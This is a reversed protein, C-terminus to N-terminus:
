ELNKYIGLVSYDEFFLELYIILPLAGEGADKFIVSLLQGDQTQTQSLRVTDLRLVRASQLIELLPPAGDFSMLLDIYLEDDESLEPVRLGQSVLAYKVDATGDFGFVPTLAVIKLSLESIMRMIRRSRVGGAEELPLICYGFTGDRVALCAEDLSGVYTVSLETDQSFVDYAEDSLANKVYCVRKLDSEVSFLESLSIDIGRERLRIAILRCLEARDASLLMDFFHSSDIEGEPCGNEHLRIRERLLALSEIPSVGDAILESLGDCLADAYLALECVRAEYGLHASRDLTNINSLFIDEASLKAGKSM